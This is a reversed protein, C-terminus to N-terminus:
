HSPRPTELDLEFPEIYNKLGPGKGLFRDCIWKDSGSGWTMESIIRSPLPNVRANSLAPLEIDPCVGAIEIPTQNSM